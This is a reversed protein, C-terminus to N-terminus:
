TNRLSHKHAIHRISEIDSRLSNRMRLRNVQNWQFWAISSTEKCGDFGRYTNSRRVREFAEPFGTDYDIRIIFLHFPVGNPTHSSMRPAFAINTLDIHESFIFLSEEHFERLATQAASEGPVAKGSFSSWRNGKQLALLIHGYGDHIFVGACHM